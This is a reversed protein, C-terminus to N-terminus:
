GSLHSQADSIWSWCKQSCLQASGPEDPRFNNTTSCVTTKPGGPDQRRKLLSRLGREHGAKLEMSPPSYALRIAVAASIPGLQSSPMTTEGGFCLIQDPALFHCFPSARASIWPGRLVSSVM